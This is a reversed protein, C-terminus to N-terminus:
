LRKNKKRREARLKEYPSAEQRKRPAKQFNRQGQQRVLTGRQDDEMQISLLEHEYEAMATLEEIQVEYIFSDYM